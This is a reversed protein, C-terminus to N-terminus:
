RAALTEGIAGPREPAAGFVRQHVTAPEMCLYAPMEAGQKRFRDNLARYLRLRLPIFTRFRGDPSLVDEGCLMPDDPFRRRAITRLAPTMRLGGMSIFSNKKAPVQAMLKDIIDMYDRESNPYAVIPDFHFAVRY